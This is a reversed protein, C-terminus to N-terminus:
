PLRDLADLRARLTNIADTITADIDIVVREKENRPGDMKPGHLEALCYSTADLARELAAEIGTDRIKKAVNM